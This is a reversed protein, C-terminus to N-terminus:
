HWIWVTKFLKIKKKPKSDAYRSDLHDSFANLTQLVEDIRERDFNPDAALLVKLFDQPNEETGDYALLWERELGSSFRVLTTDLQKQGCLSQFLLIGILLAGYRRMM